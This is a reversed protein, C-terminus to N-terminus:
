EHKILKSTVKQLLIAIPLSAAPIIIWWWAEGVLQWLDTKWIIKIIIVHVIYLELSLSGIWALVKWLININVAKRFYAYCIMIAIGIPCYMYRIAIRQLHVSKMSILAFLSMGLFLATVIKWPQIKRGSLIQSASLLGIMFVPIRSLARESTKYPLLGKLYMWYEIVVSLFIICVTSIHNSKKDWRYLLPFFLYLVFIFSIYWFSYHDGTTIWFDITTLNLFFQVIGEKDRIINLWLFFPTAALLYPLVVRNFRHKYFTRASNTKMSRSLGIASLFLFIDVGMNGRHLIMSLYKAGPFDSLGLRLYIHFFIIWLISLGFLEERCSMVDHWSFGSPSSLLNTKNTRMSAHLNM